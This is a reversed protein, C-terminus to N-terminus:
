CCLSKYWEVPLKSSKNIKNWQKQSQLYYLAPPFFIGGGWDKSHASLCILKYPPTSSHGAIPPLLQLGPAARADCKCHTIETERSALLQVRWFFKLTVLASPLPQMLLGVSLVCQVLKRGAEGLNKQLLRERWELFFCSFSEQPKRLFPSWKCFRKEGKHSEWRGWGLLLQLKEQM